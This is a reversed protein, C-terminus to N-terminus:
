DKVRVPHSAPAAKDPRFSYTLWWAVGRWQIDFKLVRGGAAATLEVVREEAEARTDYREKM